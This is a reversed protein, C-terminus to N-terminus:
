MNCRNQFLLRFSPNFSWKLKIENMRLPFLRNKELDYSKKLCKSAARSQSYQLFIMKIVLSLCFCHLSVKEKERLPPCFLGPDCFVTRMWCEFEIKLKGSVGWTAQLTDRQWEPGWGRLSCTFFPSHHWIKLSCKSAEICNQQFLVLPRM